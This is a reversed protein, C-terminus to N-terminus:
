VPGSMSWSPRNVAASCWCGKGAPETTMEMHAEFGGGFQAVVCGATGIRATIADYGARSLTATCRGPQPMYIITLPQERVQDCVGRIPELAPFPPEYAPDTVTVVIDQVM